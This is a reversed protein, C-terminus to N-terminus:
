RQVHAPCSIDNGALIDIESPVRINYPKEHARGLTRLEVTEVQHYQYPYVKYVVPLVISLALSLVFLTSLVAVHSKTMTVSDATYIGLTTLAVPLASFGAIVITRAGYVKAVQVQNNLHHTNDDTKFLKAEQFYRGIIAFIVVVALAQLVACTIYAVSNDQSVACHLVFAALPLVQIAGILSFLKINDSIDSISNASNSTNVCATGFRPIVGHMHAVMEQINNSRPFYERMKNLQFRNTYLEDAKLCFVTSTDKINFLIAEVERSLTNLYSLREDNVPQAGAELLCFTRLKKLHRLMEQLAHVAHGRNRNKIGDSLETFASFVRNVYLSNGSFSTFVADAAASLNDATDELHILTNSASSVFTQIDLLVVNANEAAQAVNKYTRTPEPFTENLAARVTSSLASSGTKLVRNTMNHVIGSLYSHSQQSLVSQVNELPILVEPEENTGTNGEDVPTNNAPAFSTYLYNGARYLASSTGQMLSYSSSQICDRIKHLAASTNQTTSYFVNSLYSHSQQSPVSQVNDAQVIAAPEENTGTNGEDVPTNNAPAFSTYLYNGASYLTSSTGQMLSYSSSQICDRIKHLAASTSQTISYFVDSLYSHPQQSPVSQVKELPILVEPEENTDTGEEDAPPHTSQFELNSNLTNQSTTVNSFPYTIQQAYPDDLLEQSDQLSYFGFLSETDQDDFEAVELSDPVTETIGNGNSPRVTPTLLRNNNFSNPM